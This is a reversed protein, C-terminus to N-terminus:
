RIPTSQAENGVISDSSRIGEGEAITEKKMKENITTKMTQLDFVLFEFEFNGGPGGLTGIRPFICWIPAM